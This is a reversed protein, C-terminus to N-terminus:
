KEETTPFAVEETVIGHDVAWEALCYLLNLVGDLADSQKATLDNATVEALVRRQNALMAYDIKEFMSKSRRSDKIADGLLDLRRNVAAGIDSVSDVM